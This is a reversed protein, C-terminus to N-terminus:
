ISKTPTKFLIELVEMAKEEKKEDYRSRIKLMEQEMLDIIGQREEKAKAIEIQYNIKASAQAHELEAQEREKIDNKTDELIKDAKETVNKKIRVAKTDLAIIQRIVKNIDADASHLM